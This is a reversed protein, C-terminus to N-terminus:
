FKHCKLDKGSTIGALMIDADVTVHTSIRRFEVPHGLCTPWLVKGM